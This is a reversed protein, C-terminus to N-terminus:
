FIITDGLALAPPPPRRETPTRWDGPGLLVARWTDRRAPGLLRVEVADGTGTHGPLSAPLTAADNVVLLDGRQLLSPLDTFCAPLAIDASPDVVLLRVGDRQPPPATAPKMGRGALTGGAPAGREAGAGSRRDDRRHA